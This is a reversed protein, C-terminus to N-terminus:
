VVTLSFHNVAEMEVAPQQQQEDSAGDAPCFGGWDGDGGAASIYHGGTRPV